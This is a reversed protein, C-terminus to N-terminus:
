ERELTIPEIVEGILGPLRPKLKATYRGILGPSACLTQSNTRCTKLSNM